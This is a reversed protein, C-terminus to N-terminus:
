LQTCKYIVYCCISGKYSLVNMYLVVAYVAKIASYM